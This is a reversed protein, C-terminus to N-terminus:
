FILVYLIAGILPFTFFGLIYGAGFDLYLQKNM